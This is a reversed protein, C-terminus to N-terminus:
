PVAGYSILVEWAADCDAAERLGTSLRRCQSVEENSEEDALSEAQARAQQICEDRFETKSPAGLDVWGLEWNQLCKNYIRTQERCSEECPSCGVAALLALLALIRM